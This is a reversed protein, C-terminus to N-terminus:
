SVPRGDVTVIVKDDYFSVLGAVRESEPLPTPYSWAVDPTVEDGIRASFHVTTGKYPCHTVTDSPTLLDM